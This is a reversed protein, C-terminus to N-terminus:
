HFHWTVYSVVYSVAYFNSEVAQEVDGRGGGGIAESLEHGFEDLKKRYLSVKLVRSGM